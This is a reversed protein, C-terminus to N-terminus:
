GVRGSLYLGGARGFRDRSLSAEAGKKSKTKKGKESAAAKSGSAARWSM